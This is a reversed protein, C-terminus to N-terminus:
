ESSHASITIVSRHTVHANQPLSLCSTQLRRCRRRCMYRYGGPEGPGGHGTSTSHEGDDRPVRGRWAVGGYWWPVGCPGDIPTTEARHRGVSPGISHPWTCLESSFWLKARSDSRIPRRRLLARLGAAFLNVWQLFSRRILGGTRERRM